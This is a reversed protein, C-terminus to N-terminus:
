TVQYLSPLRRSMTNSKHGLDLDLVFSFNLTENQGLKVYGKVLLTVM